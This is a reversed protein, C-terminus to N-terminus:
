KIRMPLTSNANFTIRNTNLGDVVTWGSPYTWNYSTADPIADVFYTLNNSGSCVNTNGNIPGPTNPTSNVTTVQLSRTSINGCSQSPTVTINGGPNNNPNVTISNSTSSGTWGVPLTWTYSAGDVTPTSYTLSTSSNCVINNGSIVGTGCGDDRLAVYAYGYHGGLTCDYVEFSISIQKGSYQSLDFSVEQWDIFNIGGSTLGYTQGDGVYYEKSACVIKQSNTPKSLDKVTSVFKPQDNASHGPNQLVLAYAYTVNFTNSGSPVNLLYEIKNAIRGTASNGLKVSYDYIYGGIKPVLEISSAIPDYDFNVDSDDHFHKMYRLEPLQKRDYLM